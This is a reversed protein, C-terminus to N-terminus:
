SLGKAKSGGGGFGAYCGIIRMTMRGRALRRPNRVPSEYCPTSFSGFFISIIQSESEVGQTFVPKTGLSRERRPLSLLSPAPQQFRTEVAQWPPLAIILPM